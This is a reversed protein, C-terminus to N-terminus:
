IVLISRMEVAIKKKLRSFEDLNADEQPVEKGKGDSCERQIKELRKLLQNM